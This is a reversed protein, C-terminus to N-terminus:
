LYRALCMLIDPQIREFESLQDWLKFFGEKNIGLLTGKVWFEEKRRLSNNSHYLIIAPGTTRHMVGNVIFEQALLIGKQDYEIYAPGDVRHYFGKDDFWEYIMHNKGNIWENYSM